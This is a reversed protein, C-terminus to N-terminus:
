TFRAFLASCMAAGWRYRRRSSKGQWNPATWVHGKELSVLRMAGAMNINAVDIIAKATGRADLGLKVGIRDVFIRKVTQIDVPRTVGAISAPDVRGLVLNADTVTPLEGGRGYCIPGPWSGASIPGVQLIGARNVHAISGGGAGITHIDVLPIRVPVSYDIDKESSITPRGDRILAVDFSTGGM